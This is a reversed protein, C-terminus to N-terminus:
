THLSRSVSFLSEANDKNYGDKARDTKWRGHRKFLQDSVGANAAASAGRARLSHSGFLHALEGKAAELMITVLKSDSPSPFGHLDHAWNIGYCAPELTSYPISQQLLFELYLAVSM